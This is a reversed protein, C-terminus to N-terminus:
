RRVNVNLGDIVFNILADDIDDHGVQSDTFIWDRFVVASFISIFSLRSLVDPDIRVKRDGLRRRQLGSAKDLYTQMGAIDALQHHTDGYSQVFLMSLFKRKHQAIFDRLETIYQRRFSDAEEGTADASMVHSECFAVLHDSLPAFISADFLQAKTGFNGFILPETVGARRAIGATTAGAYGNAEFEEGAARLIREVVEKSTRRPRRPRPPTGEKTPSAPASRPASDSM